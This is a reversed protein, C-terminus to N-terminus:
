NLPNEEWMKEPNLEAIPSAQPTLSEEEAM